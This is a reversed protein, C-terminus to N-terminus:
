EEKLAILSQIETQLTKLQSLSSAAQVKTHYSWIDRRDLIRSSANLLGSLFNKFSLINNQDEQFIREESVRTNVYTVGQYIAFGGASFLTFGRLFPSEWILSGLFAISNIPGLSRIQEKTFRIGETFGSRYIPRTSKTAINRITEPVNGIISYLGLRIVNELLYNLSLQVPSKHNNIPPTLMVPLDPKANFWHVLSLGNQIQQDNKFKKATEFGAAVITKTEQNTLLPKPM